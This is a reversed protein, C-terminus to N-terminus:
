VSRPFIIVPCWGRPLEELSGGGISVNERSANSEAAFMTKFVQNRQRMRQFEDYTFLNRVGTQTGISVGASTPDSVM